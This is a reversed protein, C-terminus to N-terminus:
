DLLSLGPSDEPVENGDDEKLLEEEEMAEVESDKDKDKVTLKSVGMSGVSSTEDKELQRLEELRQVMRKKDEDVLRHLEELRNQRSQQNDLKKGARMDVFKTLGSAGIRLQYDLEELRKEAEACVSIKLLANGSREIPTANYVRIYGPIRVRDSEVKLFRELDKRDRKAAPGTILGSFLKTVPREIDYQARSMLKLGLKGAEQKVTEVSQNDALFVAATRTTYEWQEVAVLTEGKNLQDIWREEVQTRLRNMDRAAIHNGEKTLIVMAIANNAVTAYSLNSVKKAPPTFGSPSNDREKRKKSGASPTSATAGRSTTVDNNRGGSPSPVPTAKVGTKAAKPKSSNSSTAAAKPADTTKITDRKPALSCDAVHHRESGCALCRGEKRWMRRLSPSVREHDVEPAPAEDGKGKHKGAKDQDKKPNFSGHNPHAGKASEGPRSTGAASERHSKGKGKGGASERNANGGASERNSKGKRDHHHTRGKGHGQRNDNGGSKDPM